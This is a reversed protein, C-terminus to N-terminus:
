KQSKLVLLHGSHTAAATTHLWELGLFYATHTLLPLAPSIFGKLAWFITLSDWLGLMSSPVSKSKPKMKSKKHGHETEVM